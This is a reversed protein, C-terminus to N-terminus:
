EKSDGALGRTVTVLGHRIQLARWIAALGYGCLTVASYLAVGGLIIMASAGYFITAIGTVFLGLAELTLGTARERWFIGTVATLAGGLLALYWVLTGTHGVAEQISGPRVESSVLGSISTLLVIGLFFLEFPHRSRIRESTHPM